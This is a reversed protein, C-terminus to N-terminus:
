GIAIYYYVYGNNFPSPANMVGGNRWSLTTDNLEILSILDFYFTANSGAFSTSYPVVCSFNSKSIPEGDGSVPNSYISPLFCFSINAYVYSSSKKEARGTIWVFKPVFNFSLSQQKQGTGVYSGTEIQLGQALASEIIQQVTQNGVTDANGGNAPLSTPLGTIQSSPINGEIQSSLTKPYLVDYQGQDNKQKMTINYDAM